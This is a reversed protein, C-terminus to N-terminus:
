TYTFQGGHGARRDDSRAGVSTVTLSDGDVDSDNATLDSAAFTLTTDEATGNTDDVAMPPDNVPTILVHVMASSTGGNDDSITYTFPDIGNHNVAPTYNR